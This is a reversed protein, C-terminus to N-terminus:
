TESLLPLISFCWLTIRSACSVTASRITVGSEDSVAAGNADNVASSVTVGNADNVASSVTVGNADNVTTCQLVASVTVFCWKCFCQQCVDNGSGVYRVEVLWSVVSLSLFVVSVLSLLFVIHVVWVGIVTVSVGSVSTVASVSHAGGM